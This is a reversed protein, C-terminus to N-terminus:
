RYEHSEKVLLVKGGRVTITAKKGKLFENSIGLPIFPDLNYDMLEYKLGIESVKTGKEQSFLSLFGKEGEFEVCEDKLVYLVEELDNTYMRAPIALEKLYSLIEINAISHEIRKGGLCGFFLFDDYGQKILTKVAFFADTDDKIPNLVITKGPNQIKRRDLTDFDGVLLDPEMGKELFAEYGRDCAVLYGQVKDLFNLRLPSSAGVLIARKM